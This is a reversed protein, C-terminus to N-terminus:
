FPIGPIQKPFFRISISNATFDRIVETKKNVDVHAFNAKVSDPKEILTQREVIAIDDLRSAGRLSNRTLQFRVLSLM